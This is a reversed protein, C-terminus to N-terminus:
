EMCFSDPASMANLRQELRGREQEISSESLDTAQVMYPEGWAVHVRSFPWPLQFRDWSRFCKGSKIFVRLPVIHASSRFALIVAGPKACHRPGRPGDVTVCGNYGQGRMLASAKLLARVGGKSSSGRVTKMGLTELLRALYEGDTSQSVVTVIRLNDRVHLLAFLEDHWIPFMMIIGASQMENVRDRGSQTIRLTSCWIRYGCFIFPALFRPSIKM